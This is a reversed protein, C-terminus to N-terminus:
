KKPLNEVMNNCIANGTLCEFNSISKLNDFYAGALKGNLESIKLFKEALYIANKEYHLNKLLLSSEFLGRVTYAITHTFSYAGKSFGTYKIMGNELRRNNIMELTSM